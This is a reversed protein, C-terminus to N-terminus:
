HQKLAAIVVRCNIDGEPSMESVHLVLKDGVGIERESVARYAMCLKEVAQTATGEIQRAKTASVFLRDLIPQLAERGTGSSAVAVQEYSGIADYVFVEGCGDTDMGSLVCFSYYPFGRRLYLIQSLLTAVQDPRSSTAQGFHSAARLDARFVRQLAVCDASCGASGIMIPAQALRRDPSYDVLGTNLRLSAEIDNMMMNDDVSWLRCSLHNRSALLYGGEGIMRTDAAIICFNSGAVASVLGGNLEYPEFKARTGAFVLSLLSYRFFISSKMRYTKNM